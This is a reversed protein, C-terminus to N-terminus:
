RLGAIRVREKAAKADAKPQAPKRLWAAVASFWNINLVATNMENEQDPARSRPLQRELDKPL